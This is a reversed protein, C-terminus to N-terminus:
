GHMLLGTDRVVLLYLMNQRSVDCRLSGQPNKRKYNTAPPPHDHIYLGHHQEVHLIESVVIGAINCNPLRLCSCAAYSSEADREIGMEWLAQQPQRATRQLPCSRGDYEDPMM